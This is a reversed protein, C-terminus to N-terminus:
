FGVCDTKLLNAEDTQPPNNSNSPATSPQEAGHQQALDRLADADARCEDWAVTKGSLLKRTEICVQELRGAIRRLRAPTM